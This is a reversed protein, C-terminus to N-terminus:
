SHTRRFAQQALFDWFVRTRAPLYKSPARLAYLLLPNADKLFPLEVIEGSEIEQEVILRPLFALGADALLASKIMYSNNAQIVANSTISSVKDGERLQWVDPTKLGSYLLARHKLIDEACDLRPADDLYTRTACLVRPVESLKQAILGSDNLSPTLRLVVDYEENLLDTFLDNAILELRIGPYQRQFDVAIEGMVHIAIISPLNVRLSGSIETAEECMQTRLADLEEAIRGASRYCSEGAETLRLSRTSRVLLTAGLHAELGTVSKAAWAPSIQLQKAAASFSGRDVVVRFVRLCEAVNIGPM